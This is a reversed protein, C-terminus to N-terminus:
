SVMSHCGVHEAVILIGFGLHRIQGNVLEWGRAIMGWASAISAQGCQTRQELWREGEGAATHACTRRRSSTVM